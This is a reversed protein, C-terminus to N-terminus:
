FCRSGLYFYNLKHSVQVEQYMVQASGNFIMNTVKIRTSYRLRYLVDLTAYRTYELFLCQKQFGEFDSFKSVKLFNLLVIIFNPWVNGAAPWNIWELGYKAGPIHGRRPTYHNSCHSQFKSIMERVINSRVALRWEEDTVWIINRM